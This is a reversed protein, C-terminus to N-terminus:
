RAAPWAASEGPGEHRGGPRPRRGPPPARRSRRSLGDLGWGAESLPDRAPGFLPTRHEPPAAKLVLRRIVEIVAQQMAARREGRARGSGAEPSHDRPPEAAGSREHREGRFPGDGKRIHAMGSTIALGKACKGNRRKGVPLARGSAKTNGGP